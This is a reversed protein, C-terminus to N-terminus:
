EEAAKPASVIGGMKRAYVILLKSSMRYSKVGGEVQNATLYAHNVATSVEGVAGAVGKDFRAWYDNVHDVDRQVGAHRLKVLEQTRKPDLGHLESLLQRQAFLYGSYRVYADSSRVCAAFGIFNAEDESTVCRQHAKEHAIVFPISSLPQLRHYNAEGTWPFYFGGIQLYDMLFSAAVPKAPGRSAGFGEELALDKEVLLFAKEIETDLVRMEALPQSPAGYDESGMAARYEANTAVVLAECLRSLEAIQAARDAPPQAYAQWDQREVISPRFYNIGWLVYFLAILVAGFAGVKLGGCALANFARRKRRIVHWSARGWLFLAWGGVFVLLLEGVSTPLVGTVFALGRGVNQGFGRAFVNEAFSQSQGLGWCILIVVLGLIMTLGRRKVYLGRDKPMADDPTFLAFWGIPLPNGKGELMSATEEGPTAM